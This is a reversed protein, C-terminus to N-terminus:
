VCLKPAGTGTPAEKSATGGRPAVVGVTATAAAETDSVSELVQDETDLAKDETDLVSAVRAGELDLVSAV